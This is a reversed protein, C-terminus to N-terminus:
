RSTRPGCGSSPGGSLVYSPPGRSRTRPGVRRKRPAGGFAYQPITEGRGLGGGPRRGGGGGGPPIGGRSCKRGRSCWWSCGGRVSRRRAGGCGPRAM